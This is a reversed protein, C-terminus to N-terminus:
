LHRYQGPDNKIAAEEQQRAHYELIERAFISARRESGQAIERLLSLEDGDIVLAYAEILSRGKLADVLRRARGTFRRNFIPEYM